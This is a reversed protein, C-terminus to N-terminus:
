AEAMLHSLRNPVTSSEESGVNQAPGKLFSFTGAPMHLREWYMLHSRALARIAVAQPTCGAAQGAAHHEGPNLEKLYNESAECPHTVVTM